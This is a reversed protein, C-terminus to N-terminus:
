SISYMLFIQRPFFKTFLSCDTCIGVINETYQHPFKQHIARSEGFKGQWIKGYVTCKPGTM